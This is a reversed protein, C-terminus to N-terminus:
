IESSADIYATSSRFGFRSTQTGPSSALTIMFEIDQYPYAGIMSLSYFSSGLINSGGSVSPWTGFTSAATSSCTASTRMPVPTRLYFIQGADSGPSASTTFLQPSGSSNFRYYYRQCLALEVGYPRYEFSTAVSGVEMQLGTIRLVNSVSDFFNVQNSTFGFGTNWVDGATGTKTSSGAMLGIYVAIRGATDNITTQATDGSFTYSFYTWTNTIPVERINYKTAAQSSNIYLCYTGVKNSKAWFSVTLPKASATGWALDQFDTGELRTNFAYAENSGISTHATTVSINLGTGFGTPLDSTEQAWTTRGVQGGANAWQFYRDVSRGDVGVGTVPTGRQWVTFAGNHIRNKFSLNNGSNITGVLAM